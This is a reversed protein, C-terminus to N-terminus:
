GSVEEGGRFFTRSNVGIINGQGRPTTGSMQKNPIISKRYLQKVIQFGQRANNKLQPSVIESGNDFDPSLLLALNDIIANRVDLPEGLEDGPADLPVVGLEIGWSLWLQLMSNLVDRGESITEPAAPQAISHAGIRKLASEIIFTGDSM